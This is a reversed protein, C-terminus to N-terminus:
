GCNTAHRYVSALIVNFTTTQRHIPNLFSHAVRPFLYLMLGRSFIGEQSSIIFIHLVCKKLNKCCYVRTSTKQNKTTTYASVIYRNHDEIETTGNLNSIETTSSNRKSRFMTQESRNYWQGLSRLRRELKHM